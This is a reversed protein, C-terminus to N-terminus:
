GGQRPTLVVLFALYIAYIALLLVGERRSLRKDTRLMWVLILCIGAAQLPEILLILFFDPLFAATIFLGLGAIAPIPTRFIGKNFIGERHLLAFLCGTLIPVIAVFTWRDPFWAM